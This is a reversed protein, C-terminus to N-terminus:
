RGAPGCCGGAPRWATAFGPRQMFSMPPSSSIRKRCARMGSRPSTSACPESALCCAGFRQQAAPLFAPSVDTFLYEADPRLVALMPLVAQTTGGTGGGVELVRLGQGAPMAAVSARVADAVEANLRLTAAASSYVAEVLATSGGPMLAALGNGHGKLVAPLAALANDLLTAHASLAPAAALVAARADPSAPPLPLAAWADGQRRALGARGLIDLCAAFLGQWAPAIGCEEAWAAADRPPGPRLGLGALAAAVERAALRELAALAAEETAEATPEAPAEGGAARTAAQASRAPPVPQVGLRAFAAATGAVPMVQAVGACLAREFADVGEAISIPLIGQRALRERLAADSVVGVEGWYGWDITLAPVGRTQRLYFAFADKFRCGAVYNAQGANGFVANASSFFAFYDLAEGAVAEALAVAGTAKPDLAVRLSAEDLRLLSRDDLVLASHIVGNVPGWRHRAEAIAAQLAAPDTLDAQRYLAKGGAEAVAELAAAASPRAAASCCSGPM